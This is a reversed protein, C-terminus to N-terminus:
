FPYSFIFNIVMMKNQKIISLQEYAQKFHGLKAALYALIIVVRSPGVSGVSDGTEAADIMLKDVLQELVSLSEETGLKLSSAAALTVM